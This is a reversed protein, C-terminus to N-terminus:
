MGALSLSYNQRAVCALWHLVLTKVMADSVGLIGIKVVDCELYASSVLCNQGRCMGSKSFNVIKVM